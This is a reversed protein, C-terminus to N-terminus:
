KVIFELMTIANMIDESSASSENMCKVLSLECILHNLETQNNSVKLQVYNYTVIIIFNLLVQEILDILFDNSTCSAEQLAEM